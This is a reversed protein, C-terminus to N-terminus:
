EARANETGAHVHVDGEDRRLGARARRHEESTIMVEGAASPQVLDRPRGRRRRRRTAESRGGHADIGVIRVHHEPRVKM